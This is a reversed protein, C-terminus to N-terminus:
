LATWNMEQCYLQVSYSPIILRLQEFTAQMALAHYLTISKPRVLLCKERESSRLSGGIPNKLGCNRNLIERLGTIGLTINPMGSGNM